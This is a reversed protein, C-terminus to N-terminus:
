SYGLTTERFLEEIFEKFKGRAGILNLDMSLRQPTMMSAPPATWASGSAYGGVRQYQEVSPVIRGDRDPVFVEARKEGVVYAHGKKVPGGFERNRGRELQDEVKLKRGEVMAVRVYVTRDKISALRNKLAAIKDKATEDGRLTVRPQTHKPIGLLADALQSAKSASYGAKEALRIFAERNQRLVEQAGLGAGNVKVYADYNASLKDALQALVSRNERGKKTNLDLGEGNEKIKETADAIAEATEVESGYLNRNADYVEELAERMEELRATQDVAADTLAEFSGALEGGTEAAEAQKEAVGQYHDRLLPLLPGTLWANNALKGWTDLALASFRVVDATAGAVLTLNAAAEPSGDAIIELFDGVGDALLEFSQGLGKIAPGSDESVNALAETIREVGRTLSGTLPVVDDALADFARGLNQTVRQGSAELIGLSQLVPGRFAQIAERQVGAAFRKGVGAGEIAIRPDKAAAAIGIALVGGGVGASVASGLASIIVPAASAGIAAGITLGAKSGAATAISSGGSSLGSGLKQMFSKAAPEPDPLLDALFNRSRTLRRLENEAKRIGKSIDMREAADTAGAFSEHLFVLDQNIKTISKDLTAVRRAAQESSTGLAEVKDGSVTTTKGFEQTKKDARDAAAGVKDIDRAAQDTGQRTKANALIDLRLERKEDAV